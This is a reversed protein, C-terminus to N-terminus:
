GRQECYAKYATADMLADLEALDNPRIKIMWAEDFPSINIKDPADELMTNVATITGSVPANIESAAKTSEVDGFKVGARVSAGVAPLEIFVVDSLANQAYDSIGIVAEDGDMRIWEDTKAYKCNDPYNLEAM